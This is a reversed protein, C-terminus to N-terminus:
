TRRAAPSSPSAQPAPTAELRDLVYSAVAGFGQNVVRVALYVGATIARQAREIARVPPALPGHALLAYPQRAIAQHAAEMVELTIDVEHTLLDIAGRIQQLTHQEM